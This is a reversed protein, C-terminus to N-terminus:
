SSKKTGGTPPSHQSRRGQRARQHHLQRDGEGEGIWGAGLRLASCPPDGSGSPRRRESRMAVVAIATIEVRYRPDALGAVRVVTIAPPPEPLLRRRVGTTAAWLESVVDTTFWTMSVVDALSGGGAQCCVDVALLATEVQEARSPGDAVQGAIHLLRGGESAFGHSYGLAQADHLGPPRLSWARVGGTASM